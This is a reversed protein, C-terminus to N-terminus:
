APSSMLCSHGNRAADGIAAPPALGTMRGIQEPLDQPTTDAWQSFERTRNHYRFFNASFTDAGPEFNLIAFPIAIEASWGYDTRM